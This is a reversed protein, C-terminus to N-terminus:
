DEKFDLRNRRRPHHGRYPRSQADSDKVRSIGLDSNFKNWDTDLNQSGATHGCKPCKIGSIMKVNQGCRTCIM